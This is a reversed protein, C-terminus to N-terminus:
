IFELLTLTSLGEKKIFDIKSFIFRDTISFSLSNKESVNKLEEEEVPLEQELGTELKNSTDEPKKTKDELPEKDVAAAKVFIPLACTQVGTM